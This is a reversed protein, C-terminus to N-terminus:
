PLLLLKATISKGNVGSTKLLYIGTAAPRNANIRGNWSYGARGADLVAVKQGKLNFVELQAVAKGKVTIRVTTNLHAPNPFVVLEPIASINTEDDSSSTFDLLEDLYYASMENQYAPSSPTATSWLIRGTAPVYQIAMLNNQLGAAGSLLSIQRKATMVPNVTLSDVINSYRTCCIPYDLLRFHNTAALHMGPPLSDNNLATRMVTGSSNNTEIIGTMVETNESVTHVITGSLSLGDTVAQYVDTINDAGDNNYDGQEIGNRISLLIPHLENINNYSHVNGTNLFAAKGSASIASLAGIMGPYTFSVWDQEGQESPHSVMLLPNAILSGDQNWDMFRSIVVSGQLLTDALTSTGWSSLSACDLELNSNGTIQSQYFYLDVLCNFTLVDEKVLDRQLGSIYISTGSAAMGNIIGQAEQQYKPEVEFHTQYFDVLSNYVGPNGMAVTQYIYTNFIQMIPQSLLYGQAYGRELHTGWTQLVWKDGTQTLNGNVQANTFVAFCLFILILYTVRKMAVEFLHKLWQYNEM